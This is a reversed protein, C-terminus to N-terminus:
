ELPKLKEMVRGIGPHEYWHVEIMRGNVFMAESSKKVWKSSKGGYKSVLSNVQRIKSGKAIVHSKSLMTRTLKVGGKALDDWGGGPLILGAFAGLTTIGKDGWSACPDLLTRGADFIDWVSLGFEAIAWAGLLIPIFALDGGPDVLNLPDNHCYSYFNNSGNFGLPEKATWRGVGADYDRAGFRMLGTHTDSLCGAYGFPQFDPNSNLLVQGFADYDLRQAVAGTTANLVLRVSGLHDTVFRYRVGDKIM